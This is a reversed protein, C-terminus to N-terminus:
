APTKVTGPALSASATAILSTATVLVDGGGSSGYDARVSLGATHRGASLSAVAQIPVQIAQGGSSTTEDEAVTRHDIRLELIIRASTSPSGENKVGVLASLSLRGHSRLVASLERHPTPGNHPLFCPTATGESIKAPSNCANKAIDEVNNDTIGITGVPFSLALPGVAKARIQRSGVSAAPLAIAAYSAGGLSVFLALTASVNAYTMTDTVRKLARALM